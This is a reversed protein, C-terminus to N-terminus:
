YFPLSSAFRVFFTFLCSQGHTIGQGLYRSEVVCGITGSWFQFSFSLFYLSKLTNFVGLVLTFIYNWVLLINLGPKERRVTPISFSVKKGSWYIRLPSKSIRLVLNRNFAISIWVLYGVAVTASVTYMRISIIQFTNSVSINKRM